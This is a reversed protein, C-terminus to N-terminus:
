MRGGEGEKKINWRGERREKCELTGGGEGEKKINWRGERREKREM